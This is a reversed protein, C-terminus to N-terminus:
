IPQFMVHAYHSRATRAFCPFLACSIANTLLWKAVTFRWFIPVLDSFTEGVFPIESVSGDYAIILVGRIRKCSIALNM